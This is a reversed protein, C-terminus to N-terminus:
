TLRMIRENIIFTENSLNEFYSIDIYPMSADARFTVWRIDEVGCHKKKRLTPTPEGNDIDYVLNEMKSLLLTLNSTATLLVWVGRSM